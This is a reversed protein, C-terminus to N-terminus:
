WVEFPRDEMKLLKNTGSQKEKQVSLQLDGMITKLIFLSMLIACPLTQVACPSTPQNQIAKNRPTKQPLLRGFITWILAYNIFIYSFICPMWKLSLMM